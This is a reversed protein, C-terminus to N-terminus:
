HVEHEDVHKVQKSEHGAEPHGKLEVPDHALIWLGGNYHKDWSSGPRLRFEVCISSRNRMATNGTCHKAMRAHPRMPMAPGVAAGTFLLHM